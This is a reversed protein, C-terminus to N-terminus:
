AGVHRLVHLPMRAGAEYDAIAALVLPSRLLGERGRVGARDLWHLNVIDPDLPRDDRGDVAGCFCFRLYTTGEPSRYQYVGVLAKPTFRHATEELGERRVAAPLSGGEGLHGAPQNLVRRGAAREEVLLYHGDQEIVAAVTVNPKWTM